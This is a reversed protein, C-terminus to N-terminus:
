AEDSYGRRNMQEGTWMDVWTKNEHDGLIPLQHPALHQFKKRVTNWRQLFAFKWDLYRDHDLM